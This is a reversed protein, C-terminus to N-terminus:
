KIFVGLFLQWVIHFADWPKQGKKLSEESYVVRAPVECWRLNSRTVNRLIESCHAMRDQSFQVQQAAHVTMARFGSQPDTVQRPVGVVLSNFARALHLLAKRSKPMGVADEGLFRSGFVVDASGAELPSLLRAISVPDHQGDADIHVIHTAGLHIAGETGTRLAAGQGRNVIHRFVIVGSQEAIEATGDESGDDVVIIRDVFPRVSQITEFIRTKEFFAPIVAFVRREMQWM